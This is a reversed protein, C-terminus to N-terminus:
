YLIHKHLLNGIGSQYFSIALINESFVDSYILAFPTFSTYFARAALASCTYFLRCKRTPFDITYYQSKLISENINM